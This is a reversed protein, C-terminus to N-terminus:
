GMAEELLRTLIEPGAQIAETECQLCRIAVPPLVQLNRASDRVQAPFVAGDGHVQGIALIQEATGHFTTRDILDADREIMVAQRPPDGAVFPYETHLSM